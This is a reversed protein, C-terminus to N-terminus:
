SALICSHRWTPPWPWLVGGNGLTMFGICGATVLQSRPITLLLLTITALAIVLWGHTRTMPLPQYHVAYLALFMLHLFFLYIRPSGTRTIGFTRM